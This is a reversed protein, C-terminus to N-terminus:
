PKGREKRDQDVRKRVRTAMQIVRCPVANGRGELHWTLGTPYKYGEAPFWTGGYTCLPCNLRRERFYGQEPPEPTADIIATILTDRDSHYSDTGRYIYTELLERYPAPLLDLCTQWAIFFADELERVQPELVALRNEAAWQQRWAEQLEKKTARLERRVEAETKM